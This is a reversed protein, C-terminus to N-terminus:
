YAKAEKETIKLEDVKCTSKEDTACSCPRDCKFWKVFAIWWKQWFSPGSQVKANTTTMAKWTNPQKKTEHSDPPPSKLRGRWDCLHEFAPTVARPRSRYPNVMGSLFHELPTANM